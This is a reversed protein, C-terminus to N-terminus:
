KSIIEVKYGLQKEIDEVTMKKVRDQLRVECAKETEFMFVVNCYPNYTPLRRKIEQLKHNWEYELDTCIDCLAPKNLDVLYEVEGIKYENSCDYILKLKNDELLTAEKLKNIKLCDTTM